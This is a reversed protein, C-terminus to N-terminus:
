RLRNNTCNTGRSAHMRREWADAIYQEMRIIRAATRSYINPKSIVMRSNFRDSCGWRYKYAEAGRLFDFERCGEEAMAALAHGTLVTGISMKSYAPDFGGIYYYGRNKFYFCYLAAVTASDLNLCFLRLWGTQQFQTAVAQHFSRVKPSNLVGPLWKSRWRATHLRFLENMANPLNSESATGISLAHNKSILREYYKLNSRMKKTLSLLFAEKSNPLPRYPCVSQRMVEIRLGPIVSAINQSPLLHSPIQQLDVVDWESRCTYLHQLATQWATERYGDDAVINLYDSPGTAAFQVRRFPLGFCRRIVFPAIARVSGNQRMVLVKPRGSGLLQFWSYQWQYTQFITADPSVEVLHEWERRISPIDEISDIVELSLTPQLESNVM